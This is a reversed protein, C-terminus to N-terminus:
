FAGQAKLQAATSAVKITVALVEDWDIERSNATYAVTCLAVGAHELQPLKADIQLLLKKQEDSIVAIARLPLPDSAENPRVLAKFQDAPLVVPSRHPDLPVYVVADWNQAAWARYSIISPRVERYFECAERASAQMPITTSACGTILVVALLAVSLINRM